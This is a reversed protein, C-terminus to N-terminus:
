KSEAKRHSNADPKVRSPIKRGKPWETKRHPIAQREAKPLRPKVKLIRKRERPPTKNPRAAYLEMAVAFPDPFGHRRWFSLENGRHQEDHHTRCLPLVWCDDPKEQMGTPKKRYQPAATRLHAPDNPGPRGCVTCPMKRVLALWAPDEKRPQRQRLVTM